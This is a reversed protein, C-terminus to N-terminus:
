LLACARRASVSSSLTLYKDDVEGAADLLGVALVPAAKVHARALAQRGAVDGRVKVREFGGHELLYEVFGAVVRAIEVDLLKRGTQVAVLPVKVLVPERDKGIDILDAGEVLALHLELEVVILERAQEILTPERLVAM